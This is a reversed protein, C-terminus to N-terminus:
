VKRSARRRPVPSNLTLESDTATWLSAPRGSRTRPRSPARQFVEEPWPAAMEASAVVEDAADWNAQAQEFGTEQAMVDRAAPEGASLVSRGVRQFSRNERVKRQFNGPDLRTNWITEYVKRLESITFESACFRAALATYELKARVRELADSVIAGHDFALEIDGDEIEAAPVLEARAADSGGVPSPLEACAGWYAVTVVRMRPDRGPSGYSRLQELYVSDETVGTEEALERAAAADLGEDPQVFGGPLAWAGAFPEIGRQILLVHLKDRRIAFLAVDVTVAVPPYDGPNYDFGGDSSM